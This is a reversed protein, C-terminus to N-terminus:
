KLIDSGIAKEALKKLKLLYEEDKFKLGPITLIAPLHDAQLKKYEDKSIKDAVDKIILIIGHKAGSKIEKIYVSAEEGSNTFFTDIDFAKLGLILNEPGIAAIREM